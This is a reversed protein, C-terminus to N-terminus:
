PCVEEYYCYNDDCFIQMHCTIIPGPDPPWPPGAPPDNGDAMLGTLAIFSLVSLVVLRKLTKM